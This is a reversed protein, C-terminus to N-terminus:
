AKTVRAPKYIAAALIGALLATMLDYLTWKFVLAYPVPFMVWVFHYWPVVAFLWIVVGYRVGEQIGKDERGKIFIYTFMLAMLLGMVYTLWFKAAIDPRWLGRLAELDGKLIVNAVIFKWAAGVVFIVLSATLFRKWNM